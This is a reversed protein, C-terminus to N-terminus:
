NVVREIDLIDPIKRLKDIIKDLEKIGRVYFEIKILVRANKRNTNVSMSAVDYDNESLIKTINSLVGKRNVSSINIKALFEASNKSLDESWQTEILRQMDYESLNIINTCDSRHISIGRGRTIFGIIEDGPVPNCCKSLHISVDNTGRVTIVGEKKSNQTYNKSKSILDEVLKKEDVEKNKNNQKNYEDILRGLITGEKIGGHGISALVSEWDRVNYRSLVKEVYRNKTLESISAGHAKAYNALLERGKEINVEKSNQKFWQNIKNRAQTTAIISLWDLSPGRSNQSVMIEVRDGNRLKYDINVMKGNVRAGVMKNGVASHIAYAFDIPTAGAKLTKVEGTPTFCYINDSFLNLDDKVSNIFELNNPMEQQWELLQRLWALKKELKDVRAGRKGEKYIWHAAIGYEATKHMEETRIQIEFPLTNEGVVTTHLSRYMNPKPMSIYDKFRGPIPTYINHLVGLVTYCDVIDKVVVRVAFLDYIQDLTKDQKLMKKYISFVHKVRGYVHCEINSEKLHHNVEYVIKKIFSQRDTDRKNLQKVLNFYSEPELYRLALDDLEVKIKFIGLRHAIPAYIDLTERAKEIQKEPKMYQLTRMNHLRDALKILIVRIDKAMALLMKRLNEAQIEIKDQNFSVQGLKTVGDVLLAVDDGFIKRIEEITCDTDEVVDHLIAAIISEKDLELSALIIGVRLPHTIYPEGTKRKQDKHANKAIKYAMNLQEFNVNPHYSEIYDCLYKFLEDASANEDPAKIIPDVGIDMNDLIDTM